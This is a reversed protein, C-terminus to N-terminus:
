GKWGPRKSRSGPGSTRYRATSRRSCRRVPRGRGTRLPRVSAVGPAGDQPTLSLHDISPRPPHTGDAPAPHQAPSATTRKSSNSVIPDFFTGPVGDEYLDILQRTLQAGEESPGMHRIYLDLFARAEDLTQPVADQDVGLVAGVVRWAYYYAEAGEQSMHVGLRHLSDLVLLSFFLQGGMM